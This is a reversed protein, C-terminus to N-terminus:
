PYTPKFGVFARQELDTKKSLSLADNIREAAGEIGLAGCRPAAHVKLVVPYIGFLPAHPGVISFDRLCGIVRSEKAMDHTRTKALLHELTAQTFRGGSVILRTMEMNGLENLRVISILFYAKEDDLKKRVWFSVDKGEFVRIGEIFGSCRRKGSEGCLSRAALVFPSLAFIRFNRIFAM